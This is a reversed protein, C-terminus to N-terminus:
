NRNVSIYIIGTVQHLERLLRHIENDNIDTGGAVILGPMGVDRIDFQIAANDLIHLLSAGAQEPSYEIRIIFSAPQTADCSKSTKCGLLFLLGAIALYRM